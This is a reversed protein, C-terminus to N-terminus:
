SARFTGRHAIFLRHLRELSSMKGVIFWPIVHLAFTQESRCVHTVKVYLKPNLIYVRMTGHEEPEFLVLAAMRPRLRLRKRLTAKEISAM